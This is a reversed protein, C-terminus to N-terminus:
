SSNTQLSSMPSSPFSWFDDELPNPTDLDLHIFPKFQNTRQYEEDTLPFSTYWYPEQNSLGFNSDEKFVKKKQSKLVDEYDINDDTPLQDGLVMEAATPNDDHVNEPVELSPTVLPIEVPNVESPYDNVSLETTQMPSDDSSITPLNVTFISPSPLTRVPTPKQPSDTFADITNIKVSPKSRKITSKLVPPDPIDDPSNIEDKLYPDSLVPEFKKTKKTSKNIKMSSNSRRKCNSFEHNIMPVKFPKKYPIFVVQGVSDFTVHKPSDISSKNPKKIISSLQQPTRCIFRIHPLKLDILHQSEKPVFEEKVEAKIIILNGDPNNLELCPVNNFNVEKKDNAVNKSQKETKITTKNFDMTDEDSDSIEIIEGSNPPFTSVSEEKIIPVPKVLNIITFDICEDDDNNSLTTNVKDSPIEQNPHKNALSEDQNSRTNTPCDDDDLHDDNGHKADLAKLEELAKLDELYQAEVRKEEQNHQLQQLRYKSLPPGRCTSPSKRKSAMKVESIAKSIITKNKLNSSSKSLRKSNM